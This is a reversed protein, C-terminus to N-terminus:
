QIKIYIIYFIIAIFILIIFLVAYIARNIIQESNSFVVTEPISFILNWDKIYNNESNGNDM